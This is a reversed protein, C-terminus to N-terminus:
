LNGKFIQINKEITTTGDHVVRGRVKKGELVAPVWFRDNHWMRDYPINDRSFWEATMEDTERPEGQWKTVLFIHVIQDFEPSKPFIYTMEGAKSYEIAKVGGTEESLERLAAQEVSEGPEVRGGFGNYKGEGFLRKKIGLCIKESDVLFCLTATQM